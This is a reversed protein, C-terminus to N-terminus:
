WDLKEAIVANVPCESYLCKRYCQLRRQESRLWGQQEMLVSHIRRLRIDCRADPREDELLAQEMDKASMNFQISGDVEAIGLHVDAAKIVVQIVCKPAWPDDFYDQIFALWDYGEQYRSPQFNPFAKFYESKEAITDLGHDKDMLFVKRRYAALRIEPSMKSLFYLEVWAAFGENLIIASHSLAEIARRGHEDEYFKRPHPFPLHKADAKRLLGHRYLISLQRGLRTQAYFFGHGYKEHLIYAALNQRLWVEEYDTMYAFNQLVNEELLPHLNSWDQALKPDFPVCCGVTPSYAPALNVLLEKLLPLNQMEERRAAKLALLLRRSVESPYLVRVYEEPSLLRFPISQVRESTFEQRIRSTLRLAETDLPEVIDQQFGCIQDHLSEKLRVSLIASQETDIVKYTFKYDGPVMGEFHWRDLENVRERRVFRLKSHWQLDTKIPVIKAGNGWLVQGEVVFPQNSEFQERMIGQDDVARLELAAHAPSYFEVLRDFFLPAEKQSRPWSITLTLSQRGLRQPEINWQPEIQGNPAISRIKTTPASILAGADSELLCRIRELRQPHPNRLTVSITGTQGLSIEKEIIKVDLCDIPNQFALWRLINHVFQENDAEGFDQDGLFIFDGVAVVRGKGLELGVAFLDDADNLKALPCHGNAVSAVANLDWATLVSVGSSLYHPTFKDIRDPPVNFYQEFHVGLSEALSNFSELSGDDRQKQRWISEANAAILVGGGARVFQTIAQIEPSSYTSTPAAIILVDQDDLTKEHLSTKGLTATMGLTQVKGQLQQSTDMDEDPDPLHEARLLQGHAEDFFVNPM